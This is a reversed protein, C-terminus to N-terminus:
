IWGVDYLAPTTHRGRTGGNRAIQSMMVVCKNSPPLGRRRWREFEGCIFSFGKASDYVDKAPNILTRRPRQFKYIAEEM